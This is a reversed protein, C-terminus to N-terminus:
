ITVTAEMGFYADSSRRITVGNIAYDPLYDIIRNVFASLRLYKGLQKTVKFNLYMATPVKMTTFIQPNFDRILHSMVPDSADAPTYPHLQGDEASIYSVPVGNEALRRTKVWWMCQLTTTFILGWRPIQTDFMFNTNLQDNVRGDTTDYLGVFRDSLATNGIAMSIPYFLMQSNTYTSRLWAGTITLATSLPKWRATSLQLEVGQKNIRSGNAPKSYGDLIKMDTYPLNDTTPPATLESPNISSQDYHRFSYSDYVQTYRFGSSLNERFYTVSLRNQGWNAGLRVEWKHNRAPRLDYNTPDVVYTRLNVASLEYPKNIDYYGLQVFDAYHTQPFLYDLTPMKTTLGYGGAISFQMPLLGAMFLPFSWQLNIRPDLYPRGSIYYKSDLAPLSILRIGAQAELKHSGFLATVGDEIFASLTQLSPIDRYARPRTTWGGSLPKDLDYIQGKGYNKTFTWELGAKYAHLFRGTSATGKARLKTFIDTPRGDIRFDALYTGLLYRGDHVGENMSTPALPTGNASVQKLRTLRDSVYSASTNITLSEIWAARPFALTLESTLAARMYSSRYKDIKNQNLDPDVKSNDFSGTYDTGINWTTMVNRSQRRMHARLSANIRRYNELNDRPDTKSDLYGADVNIIDGSQGLYFGKGISFLKSYEDAKFRASWPTARRIRRINVVGSTLNGYEASPIGRMVEVSEINDTSISRMDTGRNVTSRRYAADSASVGPVESLNADSGIPTGDVIFPTGLSSIAYDPNNSVTGTASLNGTERLLITNAQSMDPTKSINGPLLELLDTFSSPQLHKMADRDIRSGSTLGTNERATVVVEGLSRSEPSLSINIITDSSISIGIRRTVYGIYSAEVESLGTATRLSWNGDADSLTANHADTRVTAFPLPEGSKADTIVGSIRYVSASSSLLLTLFFSLTILRNM